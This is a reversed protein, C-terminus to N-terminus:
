VSLHKGGLLSEHLSDTQIIDVTFSLMFPFASRRVFWGGGSYYGMVAVHIVSLVLVSSERLCSTDNQRLCAPLCASLCVSLCVPSCASLCQEISHIVNPVRCLLVSRGVAASPSTAAAAATPSAAAEVM